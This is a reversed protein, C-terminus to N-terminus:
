LISVAQNTDQSTDANPRKTANPKAVCEIPLIRSVDFGYQNLDTFKPHPAPTSTLSPEGLTTYNPTYTTQEVAALYHSHLSSSTWHVQGEIPSVRRPATPNAQPTGTADTPEPRPPLNEANTVQPAAKKASAPPQYNFVPIDDDFVPLSPPRQPRPLDTPPRNPLDAFTVSAKRASAPPQYNLVPTDDFVPLEINTLDAFPRFAM